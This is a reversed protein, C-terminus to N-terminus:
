SRVKGPARLENWTGPPAVAASSLLEVRKPQLGASRLLVAVPKGDVSIRWEVTMDHRVQHAVAAALDDVTYGFHHFGIQTARDFPGRDAAQVLEVAGDLTYTLEVEQDLVAAEGELHFGMRAVRRFGVGFRAKWAAVEAELDGVVFGAHPRTGGNM